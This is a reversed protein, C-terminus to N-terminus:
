GSVFQGHLPITTSVQLRLINNIYTRYLQTSVFVVDREPNMGNTDNTKM